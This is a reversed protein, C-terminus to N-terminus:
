VTAPRASAVVDHIAAAPEAGDIVAEIGPLFLEVLRGNARILRAVVAGDLPGDGVALAVKARVEGDALDLEFNGLSLGHNARTLFEALPTRREPPAVAPLVSYVVLVAPDEATQVCMTWSGAPRIIETVLTPPDGAQCWVWGQRASLVLFEERLSPTRRTRLSSRERSARHDEGFEGGAFGDSSRQKCL